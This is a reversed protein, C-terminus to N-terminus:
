RKLSPYRYDQGKVAASILALADFVHTGKWPNPKFSLVPNPLQGSVNRTKGRTWHYATAGARTYTSNSERTDTVIVTVRKLGQITGQAEIYDGVNIFWDIVFSYPILEWALLAPNTLGTLSAASWFDAATELEAYCKVKRTFTGQSKYAINSNPDNGQSSSESIVTERFTSARFREILPRAQRVKNYAEIAGSVDSILPRVGYQYALWNDTARSRAERSFGRKWGQPLKKGGSLARFVDQPRGKRLASYAKIVRQGADQVLAATQKREAFSQALNITVGAIDNRLDTKWRESGTGSGNLCNVVEGSQSALLVIQEATWVAPDDPSTYMLTATAPQSNVTDFSVSTGSFLLDIGKPKIRRQKDTMSLSFVEYQQPYLNWGNLSDGTGVLYSRRGSNYM